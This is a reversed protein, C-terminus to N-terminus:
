TTLLAPLGAKVCGLVSGKSDPFNEFGKLSQVSGDQAVSIPYKMLYSGNMEQLNNSAFKEWNKEAISNVKKVCELSEAQKFEEAFVGMAASFLHLRYGCVDSDATHSGSFRPQHAAIAIESDRCGNMSRENINASGIIVVEDDVIMAKSHVYVMMRRTENLTKEDQNSPSKSAQSGDPLERTGLCYFNLYDTPKGDQPGYQQLAEAVLKYMMEMTNAQFRLITQVTAAAPEGEPFMPIIIYVAFREGQKIKSVIKLAIEMPIINNAGKDQNNSWAYSSGLFYQNEIYLFKEAKRIMHVYGRQISDDFIRGKKHSVTYPFRASKRPDVFIAQSGIVELRDPDFAASRADISRLVQVNWEGIDRDKAALARLSEKDLGLKKLNVLHQSEDSAQQRMREVFNSIVDIAAPGEIKAHLDHWPERPGCEPNVTTFCNNASDGKHEDGLTRFLSYRTDDYRGDTLDLGGVFATVGLKGGDAVITKQHHSFLASVAGQQVLSQKESDAVRPALKCIVKTGQFYLRTEEDHTAMLGERNESSSKDDWLLIMVVVGENARRKLLDGLSEGFGEAGRDGRVLSISTNLAWGTIYIFHRANNLVHYVDRWLRPPDWVHYGAFQVEPTIGPIDDANLYLDVHNGGVCGFYCNPIELTRALLQVPVFQVLVDLQGGHHSLQLTRIVSAVSIGKKLEDLIDSVPIVGEGIVQNVTIDQDIVKFLLHSVKCAVNTYHDENDQWDPNLDNDITRTKLLRNYKGAYVEVFPDSVDKTIKALANGIFQPLVQAAGDLNRLNKGRIIKVRIKGHLWQEDKEEEKPNSNNNVLGKIKDFIASM